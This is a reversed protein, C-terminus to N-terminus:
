LVALGLVGLALLLAVTALAIRERSTLRFLM